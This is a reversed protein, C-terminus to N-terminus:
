AVYIFTKPASEGFNWYFQPVEEMEEEIYEEVDSTRTRANFGPPFSPRTEVRGPNGAGTVSQRTEASPGRLSEEDTMSIVMPPEVNVRGNFVSPIQFVKASATTKENELRNVLSHKKQVEEETSLYFSPLSFGEGNVQYPVLQLVEPSPNISPTRRLPLNSFSGFGGNSYISDGEFVFPLQSQREYGGPYEVTPYPLPQAPFFDQPYRNQAFLANNPYPRIFPQKNQFADFPRRQKVVFLAEQNRSSQGYSDDAFQIQSPLTQVQVLGLGGAQIEPNFPNFPKTQRVPTIKFFTPAPKFSPRINNTERNVYKEQTERNDAFQIPSPLTQVQVLGLGGAEIVPNFPNFPKTQKYPKLKLFIPAPKTNKGKNNTVNNESKEELESNYEGDEAFVIPTKFGNRVRSQPRDSGPHSASTGPNFGSGGTIYGGGTNPPSTISPDPVFDPIHLGNNNNNSPFTVDTDTTSSGPNFGANGEGPGNQTYGPNYGSGEGGSGGQSYGPNFGSGGTNQGGSTGPNFGGGGSSGSNGGNGGSYGPNFGEGGIIEGGYGGDNFRQGSEDNSSDGSYGPNFGSGAVISGSEQSYRPNFGSGSGKTQKTESEESKGPEQNYEKGEREDAEDPNNKGLKSPKSESSRLVLIELLLTIWLRRMEGSRLDIIGM